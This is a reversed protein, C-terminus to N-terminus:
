LRAWNQYSVGRGMAPRPRLLPSLENEARRHGSQVRPAATGFYCPCCLFASCAPARSDRCLTLRSGPQEELSSSNRSNPCRSRRLGAAAMLYKAARLSEERLFKVSRDGSSEGPGSDMAGPRGGSTCALSLSPAADADGNPSCGTGPHRGAGAIVEYSTQGTEACNDAERPVGGAYLDYFVRCTGIEGM